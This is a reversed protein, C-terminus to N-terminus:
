NKESEPPFPGAGRRAGGGARGGGPPRGGGKEAVGGGFVGMAGGGRGAALINLLLSKEDASCDAFPGALARREATANPALYAGLAETAMAQLGGYGRHEDLARQKMSAILSQPLRISFARIADPVAPATKKRRPSKTRKTKMVGLAKVTGGDCWTLVVSRVVGRRGRVGTTGRTSDRSLDRQFFLKRVWVSKYIRVRGGLM